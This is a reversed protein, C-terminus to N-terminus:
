PPTYPLPNQICVGKMGNPTYPLNDDLLYAFLWGREVGYVRALMEIVKVSTNRIDVHGHELQSIFSNSVVFGGLREVDRLTLGRDERLRKLKQGATLKKDM